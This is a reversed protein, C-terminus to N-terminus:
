RHTWRRYLRAPTDRLARRVQATTLGAGHAVLEAMSYDLLDDPRHADSDVVLDAGAALAIRAVHGNTRSHLSRGSIELAVGNKAALEAEAETLFGPHALLDVEGSEIAARNTGPPVREATTEGHVIVIEAGARRAERAAAAISRPPALTLEVGVLTTIPGSEFARAEERLPVLIRRPDELAIHDTIALVRHGRYAAAWWMSTASEHGDTLYTHSHFDYRRAPLAGPLNRRSPRAPM